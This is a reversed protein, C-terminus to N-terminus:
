KVIVEIEQKGLHHGNVGIKMTGPHTTKVWFGVSGGIFSIEKPGIIEGNEISLSINDFSYDTVNDNEDVSSIIVRTTDYTSGIELEKDDIEVKMTPKFLPAKKVTKVTEGDKIGEFKFSVSEKGWNGIYTGGLHYLEERTLKETMMVWLIELKNKLPINPQGYKVAANLANKIRRSNGKNFRENKELHSGVLDTIIVPPFPIHPYSKKDPYFDGIFLDNKYFKVYDCNTLVTTLPVESAPYEGQNLSSCITLVPVDGFTAYVDAAPKKIRFIDMVGHYCIKDGAGFDKHTNYDFMCWGIAGANEKYKFSDDQVKIHRHVHEIRHLEDDYKKTPFMHGNYETVLHPAKVGSIVKPKTIGANNGRHTFDNTTYVDELFQSKHIFRVGGTPRSQDIERAVRNTETYFAEDDSSENIRVGWIFISAHNYDRNIMEEVNRVAVKKWESDGIHQWGPIENFVLLGIEDCADLFHKSPPYHSSRVVNCGLEYKLIHADKVQARKPMAYGVYPFSQHRNLGVLKIHKGNLFFGRETFKFERFGVRTNFEDKGIKILIEYLDPSNIDWLKPNKIKGKIDIIQELEVGKKQMESYYFKQTEKNTFSVEIPENGDANKVFLRINFSGDVKTTVFANEIYTEEVYEIYVERYIGGYTLYDIVYGFPPIDEREHSDVKVMLEFEPGFATVDVLFPTYGGKHSTILVGNVYVEAYAMVGEFHLLARKTSELKVRKKYLTIKQYEREDFNNLPFDHVNHPINVLDMGANTKLLKEDYDAFYWNFNLHQITRM